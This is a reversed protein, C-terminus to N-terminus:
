RAIRVKNDRNHIQTKKWKSMQRTVKVMPHPQTLQKRENRERKDKTKDIQEGGDTTTETPQTAEKETHMTDEDSTAIKFTESTTAIEQSRQCEESNLVPHLIPKYDGNSDDQQVTNAARGTNLRTNTKGQRVIDTWLTNTPKTQQTKQQRRVPCDQFQHGTKNCGYCTPPQGEYSILVRNSVIMIHSPIHEKLNMTAIRIDNSIKYRYNRSWADESIEKVEGYKTLTNRITRDNVEPPLNAIRKRRVGMGAPEINVKPVEGNDHRFEKQGNTEQLVQQM